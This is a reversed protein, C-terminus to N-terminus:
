EHVHSKLLEMSWLISQARGKPRIGAKKQWKSENSNSEKRTGDALNCEYSVQAVASGQRSSEKRV